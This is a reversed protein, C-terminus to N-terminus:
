SVPKKSIISELCKMVAAPATLKGSRWRRITTLNVEFFRAADGNSWGLKLQLEYYKIKNPQGM